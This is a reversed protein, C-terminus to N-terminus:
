QTEEKALPVFVTLEYVPTCRVLMEGGAKEMRVRLSGLGGGETIEGGPPRGNNTIRAAAVGDGSNLKVYLETALAHRVANTACERMATLLLYAAATDSPLEGDIHVKIGIGAAADMIQDLADKDKASESDRKLLRIASKWASLDLEGAPRNQRLLQRTAIVSRGIDDHVRMKMSLIEEERIVATINASLRRLRTGAEELQRNDRELEKQKQYLETVNSAVIQTYHGGKATEIHEESFRWAGGGEPLFVDGDRLGQRPSGNMLERLEYLSQLDRGTLAFILRHMQRNCLTVIGNRDFFCVGSPLNDFADKSMRKLHSRQRMM